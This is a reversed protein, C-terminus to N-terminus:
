AIEEIQEFQLLKAKVHAITSYLEHEWIVLCKWGYNAFHNIRDQPDDNRHWYDGYVEICKHQHGIRAFDPNRNGIWFSGDGTYVFSGPFVKYLLESMVVEPQTPRRELGRALAILRLDKFEPDSWKEKMYTCMHARHEPTRTRRRIAAVHSAYKAPDQLAAKVGESVKRRYEPDKSHKLASQKIKAVVEPENMRARRRELRYPESWIKRMTATARSRFEPDRWRKKAAIRMKRLSSESHPGKRAM